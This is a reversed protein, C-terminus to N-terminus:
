RFSEAVCGAKAAAALADGLGEVDFKTAPGRPRPQISVTRAGGLKSQPIRVLGGSPNNLDDQHVAFGLRALEMEDDSATMPPGDDVRYVAASTDTRGSFSFVVAHREYHAHPAQLSCATRDAFRDYQTSLRWAGAHTVHQPPPSELSGVSPMALLLILVARSPM